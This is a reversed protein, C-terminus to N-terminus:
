ESASKYIYVKAVTIYSDLTATFTKWILFPVASSCATMLSLCQLSVAVFLSESSFIGLIELRWDAGIVATISVISATSIM